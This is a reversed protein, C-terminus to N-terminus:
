GVNAELAVQLHRSLVAVDIGVALSGDVTGVGGNSVRNSICFLRFSHGSPPPNGDCSVSIHRKFGSCSSSSSGVGGRAVDRASPSPPLTFQGSGSNSRDLGGAAESVGQAATPSAEAAPGPGSSAPIVVPSLSTTSGELEESTRLVGSGTAVDAGGATTIGLYDLAKDDCVPNVTVGVRSSGAPTLHAHLHGARGHSGGGPPSSSAEVPRDYSSEAPGVTQEQGVGKSNIVSIGASGGGSDRGSSPVSPTMIFRGIGDRSRTRDSSEETLGALGRDDRVTTVMQGASGGAPAFPSVLHSADVHGGGGSPPFSAELAPRDGSNGAPHVPVEAARGQAPRPDYSPTSVDHAGGM